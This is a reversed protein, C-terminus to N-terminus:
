RSVCRSKTLEEELITKDDVVKTTRRAYCMAAMWLAQDEKSLKLVDRYQKPLPTPNSNVAMMM